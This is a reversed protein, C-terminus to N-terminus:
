YKTYMNMKGNEIETRKQWFVCLHLDELDRLSSELSYQSVFNPKSVARSDLSRLTVNKQRTGSTFEPVGAEPVMLKQHNM